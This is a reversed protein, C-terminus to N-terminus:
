RVTHLHLLLRFHYISPFAFSFRLVLLPFGKGEGFAFIGFFHLIKKQIILLFQPEILLFEFGKTVTLFIVITSSGASPLVPLLCLLGDYSM